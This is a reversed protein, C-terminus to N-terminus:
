LSKKRSSKRVNEKRNYSGREGETDRARGCRYPHEPSVLASGRLIKVFSSVECLINRVRDDASHKEAALFFFGRVGAKVTFTSFVVCESSCKKKYSESFGALQRSVSLVANWPSYKLISYRQAFYPLSCSRTGSHFILRSFYLTALRTNDKQCANTLERIDTTVGNTPGTKPTLRSSRVHWSEMNAPLTQPADGLNSAAKSSLLSDSQSIVADFM